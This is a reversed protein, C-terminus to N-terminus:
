VRHLVLAQSCTRLAEWSTNRQDGDQRHEIWNGAGSASVKPRLLTVLPWASAQDPWEPWSTTSVVNYMFGGKRLPFKWTRLKEDYKDQIINLVEM